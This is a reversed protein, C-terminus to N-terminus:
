RTWTLILTATRGPELIRPALNYMYNFANGVKLRVTWPGEGWSARFDVTKQGVRPDTEYLEVREFRSSFRFDAGVGFAKWQYDATVSGLHKPRFPLPMQIALDQSYLYQYAVTTTLRTLPVVTLSADVGAIRANQINQVQIKSFLLVPEIADKAETWFGAVDVQLRESPIFLRGVEFSWATEPVLDPNPIVRLGSYYTSVFREALSPARFGRGASARWSGKGDLLVLGARPSVVSTLAGGDVSIFDARAGITLRLQGFRQEGEAYVAYEGQNHTATVEQGPTVAATDGSFINSWNHDFSGELGATVTRRDDPHAVVRGEAGYGSAISVDQSSFNPNQSPRLPYEDTFATRFGSFRALWSLQDSVDRNAVFTLIGKDSRTFNGRNSDKIRFPQYTQGQMNGCEPTHPLSLTDLVCWPEYVGYQDSAWSGGLDIRTVPDPRWQVTGATQWHNAVDQERYGDLHRGGASLAARWKQTGYSASADVGEQYGTFDRFGWVDHPPNAYSGGTARLRLHFGESTEKTILNVVGGFAASGYLASGAGKAIEVHDINDVPLVDWNIGGRDAQNMPVGDVLLLVRSGLGNVFGSSGRINVQGYIMQVAPAYNVAEDPTNVARQRLATDSVLAVTTMAEAQTQAHKTGTVQIAGLEVPLLHLTIAVAVSDGAAIQITRQEPRFGYLRVSLTHSGAPVDALRFRGAADSAVPARAGSVTILADVVPRGASDTVSGSVIGGAQAALGTTGVLLLWAALRIVRSPM